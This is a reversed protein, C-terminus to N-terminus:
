CCARFQATQNPFRSSWTEWRKRSSHQSCWGLCTHVTDNGAEMGCSEINDKNVVQENITISYKLTSISTEKSILHMFTSPGHPSISAKTLSQM